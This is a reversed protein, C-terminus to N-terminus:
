RFFKDFQINDFLYRFMSYEGDALGSEGYPVGKAVENVLLSFHNVYFYDPYVTRMIEDVASLNIKRNIYDFKRDELFLIKSILPYGDPSKIRFEYEYFYTFYPGLLSISVSFNKRLRLNNSDETEEVILKLNPFQAFSYDSAQGIASFNDVLRKMRPNDNIHLLKEAIVKACSCNVVDAIPYHENIIKLLENYLKEDMHKTFVFSQHAEAM